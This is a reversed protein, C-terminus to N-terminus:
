RSLVACLLGTAGPAGLARYERTQLQAQDGATVWGTPEYAFFDLRAAQLEAGRLLEQWGGLDYQRFWGYDGPKGFPVTVLLRGGPALVRRLEILAKRDGDVERGGEIRWETNDRGIHELTSICTIVDFYKDAYPMVRVDAQAMTIGPIAKDLLDVGHLEPIGAATLHRLYEPIALAPGVDLVRRANGLRSLAWPIEVVRESMGATSYGSGFDHWENHGPLRALEAEIVKREGRGWYRLGARRESPILSAVFGRASAPLKAYLRYLPNVHRGPTPPHSADETSRNAQL